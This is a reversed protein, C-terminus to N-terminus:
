EQPSALPAARIAPRSQIASAEWREPEPMINAARAVWDPTDSKIMRAQVFLDYPIPMFTSYGASAALLLDMDSKAPHKGLAADRRFDLHKSHLARM